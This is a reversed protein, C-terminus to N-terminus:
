SKFLDNHIKLLENAPLFKVPLYISKGDYNLFNQKISEPTDQIIVYGAKNSSNFKQQTVWM